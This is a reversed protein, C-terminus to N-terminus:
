HGSHIRHLVKNLILLKLFRPEMYKIFLSRWEEAFSELHEKNQNVIYEGITQAGDLDGYICINKM